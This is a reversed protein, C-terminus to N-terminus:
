WWEGSKASVIRKACPFQVDCFRLVCRCWKRQFAQGRNPFRSTTSHLYRVCSLPSIARHYVGDVRRLVIACGGRDSPCACRIAGDRYLLDIGVGQGVFALFSTPRVLGRTASHERVAALRHGRSDFAGISITLLEIKNINEVLLSNNHLCGHRGPHRLDFQSGYPLLCLDSFPITELRGRLLVARHTPVLPVTM